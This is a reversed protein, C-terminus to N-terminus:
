STGGIERIASMSAESVSDSPVPPSSEQTTPRERCSMGKLLLHFTSEFMTPLDVQLMDQRLPSAFLVLVGNMGAWLIGAALWPTSPSLQGQEMGLQIARAVLELCCNSRALIRTHLDAPIQEQFRGRDFAMILRFYNPQQESFRLYAKALAWLQEEAPLGESRRQTRRLNTLLLNLGDLLLHALLVEKSPFYLYITGKSVEARAAVDDVTAQAIGQTFFAERAATLIAKKRLAKERARRQATSM